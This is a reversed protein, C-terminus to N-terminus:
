WKTPFSLHALLALFYDWRVYDFAKSIDLKVLLMPTRNCHYRMAM